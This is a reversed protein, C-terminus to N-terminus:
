RKVEGGSDLIAVASAQRRWGRRGRGCRGRWGTGRGTFGGRSACNGRWNRCCCRWMFYEISPLTDSRFGYTREFQQHREERMMEGHERRKYM